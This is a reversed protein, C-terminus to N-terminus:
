VCRGPSDLKSWICRRANASVTDVHLVSKASRNAISAAFVAIALSFKDPIGSPSSIEEPKYNYHHKGHNCHDTLKIYNFTDGNFATNNVNHKEKKQKNINM